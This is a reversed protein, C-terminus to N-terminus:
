YMPKGDNLNLWGKVIRYIVWIADAMLVLYGVLILFTIAGVVAWLLGFWFTRIQWRFHSELWTGRVDDMKVYNIIVAVILTMGAVFSVAQLAYVVTALTKGTKLKEDSVPTVDMKLDQDSM